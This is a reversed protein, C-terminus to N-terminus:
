RHDFISSLRTGAYQAGFVIILLLAVTLAMVDTNYRLYGQTYAIAGLGGGGTLGTMASYGILQVLLNTAGNILAPLQEVIVARWYFSTAPLKFVSRLALTDQSIVNFIGESYRAFFPVAAISLPVMAAVPGISTGTIFRTFPILLILLIIFPVARLLNIVFDVARWVLGKHAFALFLGIPLGIVVAAFLSGLSMYITEFSAKALTFVIDNM